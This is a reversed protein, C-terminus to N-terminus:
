ACDTAESGSVPASYMQAPSGMLLKKWVALRTLRLFHDKNTKLMLNPPSMEWPCTRFAWYPTQVRWEKLLLTRNQIRERTTPCWVAHPNKTLSGELKEKGSQHPKRRIPKIHLWWGALRNKKLKLPFQEIRLQEVWHNYIFNCELDKETVM